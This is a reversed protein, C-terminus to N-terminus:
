NKEIWNFVLAILVNTLNGIIWFYFIHFLSKIGLFYSGDELEFNRNVFFDPVPVVWPAAIFICIATYTVTRLKIRLTILKFTSLSFLIIQVIWVTVIFIASDTM